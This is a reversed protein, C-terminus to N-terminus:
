QNVKATDRSLRAVEGQLNLRDEVGGNTTAGGSLVLKYFCFLASLKSIHIIQPLIFFM